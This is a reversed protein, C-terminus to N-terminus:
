TESEDLGTGAGASSFSFTGFGENFSEETCTNKSFSMDATRPLSRSGNFSSLLSSARSSPVGYIRREGSDFTTIDVGHLTECLNRAKPAFSSALIDNVSINTTKYVDLFMNKHNKNDKNYLTSRGTIETPEFSVKIEKSVSPPGSSSELNITEDTVLESINIANPRRFPM